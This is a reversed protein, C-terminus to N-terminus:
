YQGYIRRARGRIRTDWRASRGSFIDFRGVRIGAEAASREESIVPIQPALQELGQLIVAEAAEDATTVPSGDAKQRLSGLGCQRITAAARTAIATLREM